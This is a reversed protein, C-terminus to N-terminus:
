DARSATKKAEEASNRQARQLSPNEAQGAFPVMFDVFRAMTGCTEGGCKLNCHRM